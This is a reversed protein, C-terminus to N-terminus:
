DLLALTHIDDPGVGEGCVQLFQHESCSFTLATGRGYSPKKGMRAGVARQISSRSARPELGVRTTRHEQVLQPLERLRLTNVQLDLIIFM